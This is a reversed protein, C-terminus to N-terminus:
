PLHGWTRRNAIVGVNSRTVGFRAAIDKQTVGEAALRRIELVDAEVLKANSGREGRQDFVPPMAGPLHKWTDRRVIMAVNSKQVGFMAGLRGCSVGQSHLRRIDLVDAETLKAHGNLVGPNSARRSRGHRVTDECNQKHTGWALNDPLNNTPDGDLHRCEEGDPCPGEFAELIM